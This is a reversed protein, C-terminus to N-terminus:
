LEVRVPVVHQLWQALWVAVNFVIFSRCSLISSLVVCREALLVTWMDLWWCCRFLGLGGRGGVGLFMM